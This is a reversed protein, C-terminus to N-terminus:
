PEVPRRLRRTSGCACTGVRRGRSLVIARVLYHFQHHRPADNRGRQRPIYGKSREVPAQGSIYITTLTEWVPRENHNACQFSTKPTPKGWQSTANEWVPKRNKHGAATPRNIYEISLRGTRALRATNMADEISSFLRWEHSGDGPIGKAPRYTLRFKNPSRFERNGATGCETIEIFGLAMAEQIAPRIAHRDIGYSEFDSYTVPLRGNEEPKGGHRAFEIEIRDLVRRASLSLVRYAHSELMEVLRGIFQGSFQTQKAM